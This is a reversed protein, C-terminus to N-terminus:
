GCLERLAQGPSPQRLLSEGILLARAGATHLRLVDQRTRIGSEAVVPVGPPVLPALTETTGLDVTQTALDRNNIGLLVGDRHSKFVFQIAEFLRERSHVELLVWLDLSRALGVLEAARPGGVAEMIVLIADTGYARSEHVQYEDLIFDKRLIPLGVPEGGPAPGGADKIQEIFELRGGFFREDTLVSLASAGAAAYERALAVPDFDPRILGASPSARKIEAIVNPRGRRPVAVAGYFNRRPLYYGPRSKLQALPRAARAQEVERRKHALIEGLIDAM